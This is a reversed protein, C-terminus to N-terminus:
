GPHHCRAEDGRGGDDSFKTVSKVAQGVDALVSIKIPGAM